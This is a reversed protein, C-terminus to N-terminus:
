SAPRVDVTRTLTVTGGGPERVGHVRVTATGPQTFVVQVEHSLRYVMEACGVGPGRRHIDFPAVDATTAGLSLRTDGERTCSSPGITHVVVTFPQGATVSAPASVDATAGYLEMIAPERVSTQPETVGCAAAAALLLLAGARRPLPTRM